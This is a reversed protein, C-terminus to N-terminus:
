KKATKRLKMNDHMFRDFTRETIHMLDHFLMHGEKSNMMDEGLPGRYTMELLRRLLKFQKEVLELDNARMAAVLQSNAEYLWPADEKVISFALSLGIHTGFEDSGFGLEQIMMPNIRRFRRRKSSGIADAFREEFRTPLDQFMVKVEEFLKATSAGDIEPKEPKADKPDALKKLITDAKQKFAKVQMRVTDEDPEANPIRGLLQTVLKVLSDEDEGCNQFQAFPGTIAASLPMGLAVAHVPTNLKGKAVGAEYLIWPRDLSRKTLLCVVDLACTLKSMLEPYWETGYEIGQSGRKDSSRFSKLVGCSVSSLLKSFAEALEADRSDHSIFVLAGPTSIQEGSTGSKMKNEPADPM